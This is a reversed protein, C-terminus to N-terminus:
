FLPKGKQGADKLELQLLKAITAAIQNAEFTGTSKVQGSNIQNGFAIIWTAEAGDVGKGHSTWSAGNGRGHDTTIVFTTQGKYFPDSQTYEWLQKIMEDATRASELYHDYLGNHAFDDTEGYGVFLLKPKQNKLAELAYQHTFVDYRVGQWRKPTLRQMANIQVEAASLNSHSATRYGANVPLNSRKENFIYPFLEWSGFVAVKDKFRIDQQAFEFVSVNPNDRKKNNSVAADDKLGTIIENYGPASVLFKNSLQVVSGQSRNGLVWGSQVTSSHLFPFLQVPRKSANSDFFLDKLRKPDETYKKDSILDKDAGQFLEQWRLGDLTVVIVKSEQAQMVNLFLTMVLLQLIKM